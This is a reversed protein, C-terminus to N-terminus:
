GPCPPHRGGLYRHGGRRHVLQQRLHADRSPRALHHREDLVHGGSKVRRIIRHTLTDHDGDVAYFRVLVQNLVVDNLVEVRDDAALTAAFRRALACCREVLEAVGARGLTRIATYVPFGRARRSLEPNYEMADREDASGNPLYSARLGMAARHAEPHACLIIGSDYPVNLWKHADTAWSDALEVGTLLTRLASSAAAWLGFAGDIHVWAGADHALGRIDALPDIAGTNVNGAQACVITPRTTEELADRLADPHM